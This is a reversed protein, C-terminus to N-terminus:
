CCCAGHHAASCHPAQHSNHVMVGQVFKDQSSELGGDGVGAGVWGVGRGASLQHRSNSFSCGRVRARHVTGEPAMSRQYLLTM